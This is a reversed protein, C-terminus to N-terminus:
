ADRKEEDDGEYDEAAERLAAWDRWNKRQDELVAKEARMQKVLEHLIDIADVCDQLAGEAKEAREETVQITAEYRKCFQVLLSLAFKTEFDITRRVLLAANEVQELAVKRQAPTFPEDAM